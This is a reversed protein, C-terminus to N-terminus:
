LGELERKRVVYRTIFQVGDSTYTQQEIKIPWRSMAEDLLITGVGRRRYSADVYLNFNGTIEIELGDLGIADFPYHNLIGRLLGLSDYFLLCDVNGYETPESRYTIGPQGQVPYQDRQSEWSFAPGHPNIKLTLRDPWRQTPM